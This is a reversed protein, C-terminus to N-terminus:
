IVYLHQEMFNWSCDSSLVTPTKKQIKTLYQQKM